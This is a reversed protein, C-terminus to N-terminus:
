SQFILTGKGNKMNMGHELKVVGHGHHSCYSFKPRPLFDGKFIVLMRWHKPNSGIGNRGRHFIFRIQLFRFKFSNQM